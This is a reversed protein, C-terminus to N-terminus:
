LSHLYSLYVFRCFYVNEYIWLFPKDEYSVQGWLKLVTNRQVISMTSNPSKLFFKDSTKTAFFHM